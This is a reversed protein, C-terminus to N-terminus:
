VVQSILKSWLVGSALWAISAMEDPRLMWLMADQGDKEAVLYLTDCPPNASEDSVHGAAFICNNGAYEQRGSETLLYGAFM